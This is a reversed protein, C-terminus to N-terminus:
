AAGEVLDNALSDPRGAWREISLFAGFRGTVLAGHKRNAPVKIWRRLSFTRMVLGHRGGWWIMKGALFFLLAAAREHHHLPINAGAPCLWLEVQWCGLTCLKLGRCGFKSVTTVTTVTTM